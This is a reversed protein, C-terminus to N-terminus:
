SHDTGTGDNDSPLETEQLTHGIEDQVHSSHHQTSSTETSSTQQTATTETSPTQQTTSAKTDTPILISNEFAFLSLYILSRKDGAKLMWKFGAASSLGEGEKEKEMMVLRTEEGKDDGASSHSSGQREGGQEVQLPQSQVVQPWSPGEKPVGNNIQIDPDPVRRALKEFRSFYFASFHM